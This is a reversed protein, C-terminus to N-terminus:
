TGERYLREAREIRAKMKSFNKTGSYFMYRDPIEIIKGDIKEFGPVTRLKGIKKLEEIEKRSLLYKKKIKAVGVWSAKMGVGNFIKGKDRVPTKRKIGSMFEEYTQAKKILEM